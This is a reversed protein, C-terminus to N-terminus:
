PTACPATAACGDLVAAAARDIGLPTSVRFDALERRWFAESATGDQRRLWVIYDRYPPPPPLTAERGLRLEEYIAIVERLIVSM